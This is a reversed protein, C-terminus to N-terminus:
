LPGRFLRMFFGGYCLGQVPGKFLPLLNRACPGQVTNVNFFNSIRILIDSSSPFVIANM